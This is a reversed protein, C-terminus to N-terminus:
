VLENMKATQLLRSANQRMRSGLLNVRDIGELARVTFDVIGNHLIHIVWIKRRYSGDIMWVEQFILPGLFDVTGGETEAIGDDSQQM